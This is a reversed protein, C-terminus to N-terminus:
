EKVWKIIQNIGDQQLIRIFYIGSPLATTNIDMPGSNIDNIRHIVRGHIDAMQINQLKSNLPMKIRVRNKGPNPYISLINVKKTLAASNVALQNEDAGIDWYGDLGRRNGEYDFGTTSLSIGKNLACNDSSNLKLISQSEFTPECRYSHLDYGLNKWVTFNKNGNWRFLEKGGFTNYDSSFSGPIANNNWQNSNLTIYGDRIQTFITNRIEVRNLQYPLLIGDKSHRDEMRLGFRFGRITNNHIKINSVFSHTHAATMEIGAGQNHNTGSLYNIINNRIIIDRVEVLEFPPDTAPTSIDSIVLPANNRNCVRDTREIINNEIIHGINDRTAFDENTGIDICNVCDLFYNNSITCYQANNSLNVASSAICTGGDDWGGNGDAIFTNGTITMNELHAGWAKIGATEIEVYNDKFVIGTGDVYRMIYGGINKFHNNEVRLRSANQPKICIYSEKAPCNVGLNEFSCHHIRWDECGGTGSCPLEIFHMNGGANCGGDPFYNIMQVYSIEINDPKSPFQAKIAINLNNQGDMIFVDDTLDDNNNKDWITIKNRNTSSPGSVNIIVEEHFIGECACTYQQDPSWQNICKQLTAFPSTITGNNTDSGLQASVYYVIQSHIIFCSLMNFILSAIKM